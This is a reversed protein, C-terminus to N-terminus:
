YGIGNMLPPILRFAMGKRRPAATPKKMPPQYELLYTTLYLGQTSTGVPITGTGFCSGCSPSDGTSFVVTTGLFSLIWSGAIALAHLHRVGRPKQSSWYTCIDSVGLARTMRIRSTLGPRFESPSADPRHVAFEDLVGLHRRVM